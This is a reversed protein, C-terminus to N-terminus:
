QSFSKGEPARGKPEVPPALAETGNLSVQTQLKMVTDNLKQKITELERQNLGKEHLQALSAELEMAMQALSIKVERDKDKQQRDKAKNEDAAQSLMAKFQLETGKVQMSLQGELQKMQADTQAKFQALQQAGQQRIQELELAPDQQPQSMNEVIKQWDPDDYALLSPDVKNMKMMEDMWKVPDKGYIPNQVHEGIQLIANNAVDREILASSGLADVEFEGKLEDDDSYQLIHTYYRGVHPETVLDDYLRVIRRLITSANNNQLQMGGLTAPTNQSSQGQMVLPLGTIDEALKLGLEIIAQLEAQMMPAVLFQIADRPGVRSEPDADDAAVFVKWPRVENPGDAAQVINTDIYLMPGGAIGANDMMHRMAGVVIRQAPRIQRAIGLGWPLGMRRQMVMFDYPFAGTQLHSVVAKIVRNNVMTVQVYVYQNPDEQDTVETLPKDAMFDLLNLDQRRMSGHYYWIEFLSKQAAISIKLGPNDMDYNFEKTAEMPGEAICTRIQGTIYGNIGELRQLDRRTIDDREWFYNGSHIDEGCAPDPYCNRYLVRLSVPKIEERQTLKGDTFVLKTTKAPVPGKLVGTGIKSADEIVRRNHAHYRSETHWDYIQQEVKKAAIGVKKLLAKAQDVANATQEQEAEPTKANGNIARKISNSLEGKSLALLEPKPTPKIKFPMDESPFLMDSIRASVADVYPRTINLFITSGRADTDEDLPLQSGLPKGRWAKLERRNADDIGEYYEEDELWEDEIGSNQRGEIAQSRTEALNMGIINLRTFLDEMKKKNARSSRRSADDEGLNTEGIQTESKKVAM